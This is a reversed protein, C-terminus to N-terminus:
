DLENVIAAPLGVGDDIAKWILLLNGVTAAPRVLCPWSGNEREYMTMLAEATDDQPVHSGLSFELIRIKADLSLENPLSPDDHFADCYQESLRTLRQTRRSDGQMPAGDGTGARVVQLRCQHISPLLHSNLKNFLLALTKAPNSGPHTIGAYACLEEFLEYRIGLREALKRGDSWSNVKSGEWADFVDHDNV